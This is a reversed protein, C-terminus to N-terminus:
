GRCQRTRRGRMARSGTPRAACWMPSRVTSPSSPPPPFRSTSPTWRRGPKTWAPIGAAGGRFGAGARGRRLGRRDESASAFTPGTMDVVLNALVTAIIERRLRHSEMEADFKGLAKPFYAHLTKEFYPDDPAGGAVIEASLELKGYATLM